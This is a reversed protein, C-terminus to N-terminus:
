VVQESLVFRATNRTKQELLITKGKLLTDLIEESYHRITLLSVNENYTVEYEKSLKELLAKMKLEDQDICVSFSIASNQMTNISINIASFIGYIHSLNKEAIFSYDRAKISILVQSPKHIYSPIISDSATNNDILTGKNLPNLFSKVQLPIGKNQLPKITKPHIVSAGYYALEVAELYSINNLKVTQPFYKPDANLMGDVDKWIILEGADLVSALIAASFDSGERGLTTTFNESTAGIFGQTIFLNGQKSELDKFKRLSLEQTFEWQVNARRYDNDTRILDRADLWSCSLGCDNLYHSVIRTSLMEGLSVMQDYEFDYSGVPEDELQWELEVFTNHIEQFVPHKKNPFLADMIQFHYDKIQQLKEEVEGTKFFFAKLLEELANTTKGMASIVVLLQEEQFQKIIEAINKVAIADKVSAGGFKFVKM